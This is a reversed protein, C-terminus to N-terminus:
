PLSKLPKARVKAQKSQHTIEERISKAVHAYAEAMGARRHKEDDSFASWAREQKAWADFRKALSELLTADFLEGRLGTAVLALADGECRLQRYEEHTTANAMDEYREKASDRALGAVGKRGVAHMPYEPDILAFLLLRAQDLTLSPMGVGKTWKRILRMEVKSQKMTSVGEGM